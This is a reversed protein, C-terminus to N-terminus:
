NGSNWEANQGFWTPVQSPENKPADGAPETQQPIEDTATQNWESGFTAGFQCGQSTGECMAARDADGSVESVEGEAESEDEGDDVRFEKLENMIRFDAAEQASELFYDVESVIRNVKEYFEEEKEFFDPTGIVHTLLLLEKIVHNEVDDMDVCTDKAYKWGCFWVSKDEQYQNYSCIRSLQNTYSALQTLIFRLESSTKLVDKGINGTMCKVIIENKADSIFQNIKQEDAWPKFDAMAKDTPKFTAYYSM